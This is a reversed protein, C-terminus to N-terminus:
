YGEMQLFAMIFGTEENTLARSGNVYLEEIVAAGRDAQDKQYESFVRERYDAKLSILGGAWAFRLIEGNTKEANLRTAVEEAEIAKQYVSNIDAM